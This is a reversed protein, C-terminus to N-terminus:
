WQRNAEEEKKGDEDIFGVKYNKSIPMLGNDRLMKDEGRRNLYAPQQVYRQAEFHKYWATSTGKVPRWRAIYIINTLYSKRVSNKFKIVGEIYEANMHYAVIVEEILDCKKITNNIFNYDFLDPNKSCNILDVNFHWLRCKYSMRAPNQKYSEKSTGPARNFYIPGTKPM